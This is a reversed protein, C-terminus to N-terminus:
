NDKVMILTFTEDYEKDKTLACFLAGVEDYDKTLTTTVSTTGVPFRFGVNSEITFNILFSLPKNLKMTYTGAKFGGQHNTVSVGGSSTAKGKFTTKGTYKDYTFTIGYRNTNILDLYNIPRTKLKKFFFYDFYRTNANNLIYNKKNM